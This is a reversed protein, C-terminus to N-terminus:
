HQSERERRREEEDQGRLVAQQNAVAKQHAREGLIGAKRDSLEELLGVRGYILMTDGPHVM